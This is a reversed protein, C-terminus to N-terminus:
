FGFAAVLDQLTGEFLGLHVQSWTQQDGTLYPIIVLGNGLDVPESGDSSNYGEFVHADPFLYCAGDHDYSVFTLFDDSYALNM